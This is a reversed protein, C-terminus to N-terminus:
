VDSGGDPPRTGATEWDWVTSESEAASGSADEGANMPTAPAVPDRIALSATYFEWVGNNATDPSLDAVGSTPLGDDAYLTAGHEDQGELAQVADLDHLRSLTNRVHEKSCGVVDALERASKSSHSDRLEEVIERQTDTFTWQIGSVQLDAFGRPMADTRVFVTAHSDPDEPNRVYRGVAQATHNERVSALIEAASDADPGTFGRGHAREEEGDIDTTEPEADLDLEALLNIVYDDGPDICGEILAILEDAFDNRSKEEGYHM